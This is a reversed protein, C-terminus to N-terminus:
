MWLQSLCLALCQIFFLRFCYSQLRPELPLASAWCTSNTSNLNSYQWFYFLIFLILCHLTWFLVGNNQKRNRNTLGVVHPSKPKSPVPTQVWSRISGLCIYWKLWEVLCRNQTPYKGSLTELDIKRFHRWVKIRWIEAEETTLIEPMLLM